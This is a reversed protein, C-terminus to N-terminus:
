HANPRARLGPNESPSEQNRENSAKQRDGTQGLNRRFRVPFAIRALPAHTATARRILAPRRATTGGWFLSECPSDVIVNSRRRECDQGRGWRLFRRSFRARNSVVGVISVGVRILRWAWMALFLRLLKSQYFGFGIASCGARFRRFIRIALRVRYILDFGSVMRRGVALVGQDVLGLRFSLWELDPKYTHHVSELAM